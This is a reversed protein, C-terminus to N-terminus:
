VSGKALKKLLIERNLDKEYERFKMYLNYSRNSKRTLPAASIDGGKKICRDVANDFGRKYYEAWVGILFLRISKMLIKM